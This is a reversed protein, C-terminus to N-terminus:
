RKLDHLDYFRNLGKRSRIRIIPVNEPVMPIFQEGRSLYARRNKILYWLLSNRSFMQRWSEINEGCIKGRTIARSIARLTIRWFMVSWPLDIWIVTDCQDTVLSELRSSYNGDVVWRGRSTNIAEQVKVKFDDPQREVWKPLWFIADLEIFSYDYKVSIAKSLTTKGGGGRINIKEGIPHSLCALPRNQYSM